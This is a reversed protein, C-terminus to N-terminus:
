SFINQDSVGDYVLNRATHGFGCGLDLFKEGHLLRNLIGAYWDDGYTERLNYNVFFFSAICRYHYVEWALSRIEMLHRVLEDKDDIGVYQSYFEKAWDGVAPPEAMWDKRMCLSPLKDAPLQM